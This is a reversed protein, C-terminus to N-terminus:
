YYVLDLTDFGSIGFDAADAELTNMDIVTLVIEQGDVSLTISSEDGTWTGEATLLDDHEEVPEISCTGDENLYIDLMTEAGSITGYGSEATAEVTGRWQGGYTAVSDFEESDASTTASATASGDDDSQGTSSCAMLPSALALAVVLALARVKM